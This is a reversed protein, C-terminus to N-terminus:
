HPGRKGPAWFARGGSRAAVQRVVLNTLLLRQRTNPLTELSILSTEMFLSRYNLDESRGTAASALM